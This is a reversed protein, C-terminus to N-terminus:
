ILRSSDTSYKLSETVRSGCIIVQHSSISKSLAAEMWIQNIVVYNKTTQTQKCQETINECM